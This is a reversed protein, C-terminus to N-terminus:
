SSLLNFKILEETLNSMKETGEILVIFRNQITNLVM